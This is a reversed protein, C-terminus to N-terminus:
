RAGNSVNLTEFRELSAFPENLTYGEVNKKNVTFNLFVKQLLMNLDEMKDTKALRLAMNDFLELFESYTLTAGKVANIKKELAEIDSNLQIIDDSTKQFDEKQYKKVEEDKELVMASKLDVIREELKTLESKKVRVSDQSEKLRQNSVRQMEAKYHEYAEFNSFPKKKFYDIAFDLVVKARTSKNEFVCGETECRYYFYNKTENKLKKPTIGTLRAEGCGACIVKNRLLDSKVTGGRKFNKALKIIDSSKELENIKMFDEVSVAPVFNYIETLDVVHKGYMVVGAYVPDKMFRRVAEKQMHAKYTKGLATNQRTYNNDNLYEAIEDLIIGKLRMQFAEVILTFNRDDPRLYQNRDKKYGHKAKNIYTGEEISRRISRNVVDRLQDSYQKALVFTIGLLMMGSADNTHTYAVFKLDKIVQKDLLDIVEGAEKMNRALRNPHWAIVGDYKGDQLDNMMERFKPRIDPEKASMSEQFVKVVRLGNRQAMEKCDAMQDGLSREQKDEADTSKRVYIAYRYFQDQDQEKVTFKSSLIDKLQTTTNIDLM